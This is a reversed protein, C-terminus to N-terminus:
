NGLNMCDYLDEYILHYLDSLIYDTNFYKPYFYICPYKCDIKGRLLHGNKLNNEIIQLYYLIVDKDQQNVNCVKKECLDISEKKIYIRLKENEVLHFTYYITTSLNINYSKEEKRINPLCSHHTEIIEFIEQDNDCNNFKISSKNIYNLLDIYLKGLIISYRDIINHIFKERDINVLKSSSILKTNKILDILEIVPVQYKEPWLPLLLSEHYCKLFPKIRKDKESFVLYGDMCRTDINSAIKSYKIIKKYVGDFSSIDNIKRREMVESNDFKLINVFLEKNEKEISYLVISGSEKNIEFISIINGNNDYCSFFLCIFIFAFISTIVAIRGIILHGNIQRMRM